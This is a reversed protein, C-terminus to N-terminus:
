QDLLHVTAVQDKTRVLLVEQGVPVLLLLKQGPHFQFRLVASM